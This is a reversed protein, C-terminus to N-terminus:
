SGATPGGPDGGLERAFAGAVGGGLQLQNNAANVIADAKVESIDGLRVEIRDDAM